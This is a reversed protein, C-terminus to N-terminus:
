KNVEKKVKNAANVEKSLAEIQKIAEKIKKRTRTKEVLDIHAKKYTEAAHDIQDSLIISQRTKYLNEYVFLVTSVDIKKNNNAVSKFAREIYNKEVNILSPKIKQTSINKVEDMLDVILPNAEKLTLKLISAQKIRIYLGGASRVGMAIFGGVKELPDDKKYKENYKETADDLSNGLEEASDSLADTFDDSVLTTLLDSYVQLVSLAADMQKGAASFDMEDKYAALITKWSDSSESTDVGGQNDIKGFEKRTVNLLKTNRVLVGYSEALTGPLESYGKSAKAFKEVEKVQSTTLVACGTVFFLILPFFITIARTKQKNKKMM